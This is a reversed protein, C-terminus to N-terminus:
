KIWLLVTAVTFLPAFLSVVIHPPEVIAQEDFLLLVSAQLYLISRKVFIMSQKEKFVAETAVGKISRSTKNGVIEKRWNSSRAENKES